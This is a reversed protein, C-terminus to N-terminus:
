EGVYTRVLMAFVAYLDEITDFESKISYNKHFLDSFSLKKYTNYGNEQMWDTFQNCINVLYEREAEPSEFDYITELEMIYKQKDKLYTIDFDNLTFLNCDTGSSPIGWIHELNNFCDEWGKITDNSMDSM